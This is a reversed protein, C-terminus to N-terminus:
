MQKSGLDQLVRFFTVTWIDVLLPARVEEVLPARVEKRWLNTTLHAKHNIGSQTLGIM